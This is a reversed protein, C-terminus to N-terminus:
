ILQNSTPSLRRPELLAETLSGIKGTDSRAISPRPFRGGLGAPRRLEASRRSSAGLKTAVTTGCRQIERPMALRCVKKASRLLKRSM